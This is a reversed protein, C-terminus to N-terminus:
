MHNIHFVSSHADGCGFNPPFKSGGLMNPVGLGLRKRLHIKINLWMVPLSFESSDQSFNQPTMRRLLYLVFFVPLTAWSNVCNEGGSGVQNM